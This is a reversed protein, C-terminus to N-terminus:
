LKVDYRDQNEHSNRLIRPNAPKMGGNMRGGQQNREAEAAEEAEMRLRLQDFKERLKPISMINSKWFPHKQSWRTIRHIEDLSRKDLDIMRRAEARWGDSITPRKSGNKVIWEALYTCVREVDERYPEVKKPKASPKSGEPSAGEGFLPPTLTPNTTSSETPSNRILFGESPTDGPPMGAYRRAAHETDGPPMGEGGARAALRYAGDVDTAAGQRDPTTSAATKTARKRPERAANPDGVSLAYGTRSEGEVSLKRVWGAATLARMWEVLTSRSASTTAELETYTPAHKPAIEATSANSESLLMMLICKGTIDISSVKVAKEVEWRTVLGTM